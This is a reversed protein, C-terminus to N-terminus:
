QGLSVVDPPLWGSPSPPSSLRSSGGEKLGMSGLIQHPGHLRKLSDKGDVRQVRVGQVHGVEQGQGCTVQGGCDEVIRGRALGCRWASPCGEPRLAVSCGQCGRGHCHGRYPFGDSSLLKKSITSIPMCRLSVRDKRYGCDLSM